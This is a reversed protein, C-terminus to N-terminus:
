ITDKEPLFITIIYADLQLDKNDQNGNVNKGYISIISLFNKIFITAVRKVQVIITLFLWSLQDHM